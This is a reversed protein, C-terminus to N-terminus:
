LIGRDRLVERAIAEAPRGEAFARARLLALADDVGCGNAVSLAGAAQHVVDRHDAGGLTEPDPALLLATAVAEAIRTFGGSALLRPEPDYVALAGICTGAMGLPVAAVGTPGLAALGPGYGPWRQELTRGTAVVPEGVGDTADRVPGEGLVFELEQAARAVEDSATFALHSLGHGVLTLAASPTACAEAVDTILHPRPGHLHAWQTMRRAFGELLEASSRHRAASARHLAAVRLNVDRTSERTQAEHQEAIRDSRRAREHAMAARQWAALAQSHPDGEVAM